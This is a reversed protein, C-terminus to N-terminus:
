PDAKDAGATTSPNDLLTACAEPVEPPMMQVGRWYDTRREKTSAVSLMLKLDRPVRGFTPCGKVAGLFIGPKRRLARLVHWRAAYASKSLDRCARRASDRALEIRAINTRNEQAARELRSKLDAPIRGFALCGKLVELLANPESAFSRHILQHAMYAKDTDDKCALTGLHTFVKTRDPLPQRALQCWGRLDEGFRWKHDDKTELLPGLRAAVVKASDEIREGGSASEKAMEKQLKGLDMATKALADRERDDLSRINM